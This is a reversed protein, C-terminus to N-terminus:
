KPEVWQNLGDDFFIARGGNAYYWNAIGGGNIRDPEGLIARVQNPNMGTKLQRWAALSKWGTGQIAPKQDASGLAAEIKSLRLKLGQVEKELQEVRGNDQAQAFTVHVLIAAMVACHRLKRTYMQAGMSFNLAM